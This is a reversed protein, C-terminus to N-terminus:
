FNTPPYKVDEMRTNGGGIRPSVVFMTVLNHVYMGWGKIFVQICM